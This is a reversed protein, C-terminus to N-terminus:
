SAVGLEIRVYDYLYAQAVMQAQCSAPLQCPRMDTLAIHSELRADYESRDGRDRSLRPQGDRAPDYRLARYSAASPSM